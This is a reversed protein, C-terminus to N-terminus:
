LQETTEESQLLGADSLARAVVRFVAADHAESNVSKTELAARICRYAQSPAGALRGFWHANTQILRLLGDPRALADFREMQELSFVYAEDTREAPAVGNHGVCEM